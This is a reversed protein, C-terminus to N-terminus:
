GLDTISTSSRIIAEAIILQLIWPLWASLRYIPIFDITSFLPILLLLRQPIAAFTLAYSRVMWQGHVKYRGALLHRVSQATTALWALALLFFGLQAVRGGMAFSAIYLGALGSSFIALLYVMGMTKHVMPFRWRFRKIFQWPGVAIGLLGGTIHTYFIALYLSSSAAAKSKLIGSDSGQYYHISMILMTLAGFYLFAILSIKKM